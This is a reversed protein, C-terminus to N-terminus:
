GFDTGAQLSEGAVHIRCAFGATCTRDELSARNCERGTGIGYQGWYCSDNDQTNSTPGNVQLYGAFAGFHAVDTCHGALAILAIQHFLHIRSRVSLSLSPSCM